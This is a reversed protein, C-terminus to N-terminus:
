GSQSYETLEVPNKKVKHLEKLLGNDRIEVAPFLNNPKSGKVLISILHFIQIQEDKRLEFNEM